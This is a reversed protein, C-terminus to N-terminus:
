KKLGINLFVLDKIVKQAQHEFVYPKEHSKAETAQRSPRLAWPGVFCRRGVICVFERDVAM